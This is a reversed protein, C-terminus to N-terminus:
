QDISCPLSAISATSRLSNTDTLTSELPAYHTDVSAIEELIEHMFDFKTNAHPTAISQDSLLKTSTHTAPHSQENQKAALSKISGTFAANPVSSTSSSSTRSDVAYAHARFVGESVGDRQVRYMSTSPANVSANM